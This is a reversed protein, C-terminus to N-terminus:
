PDVIVHFKCGDFTLTAGQKVVAAKVAHGDVAVGGGLDTVTGAAKPGPQALRDLLELFRPREEPTLM